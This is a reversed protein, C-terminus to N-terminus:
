VAAYHEREVAFAIGRLADRRGRGHGVDGRHRSCHGAVALHKHGRERRPGGLGRFEPDEAGSRGSATKEQYVSNRTRCCIHRSASSSSAMILVPVWDTM